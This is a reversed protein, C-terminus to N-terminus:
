FWGNSLCGRNQEVPVFTKNWYGRNQELVKRIHSRAERSWFNSFDPKGPGFILFILFFLFILFDPRRPGFILFIRFFVHFILFNSFRAEVRLVPVFWSGSFQFLVPTVSVFCKNWHSLTKNWHFLTKNWYFGLKTGTSM